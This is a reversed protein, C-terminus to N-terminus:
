GIHDTSEDEGLAEVEDEDEDEHEELAEVEDEHEGQAEVQDKSKKDVIYQRAKRWSHQLQVHM